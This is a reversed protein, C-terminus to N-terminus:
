GSFHEEGHMPIRRCREPSWSISLLFDWLSRVYHICNQLALAHIESSSKQAGYALTLNELIISRRFRLGHFWLHGLVSSVFLAVRIPVWNALRSLVYFFRIVPCRRRAGIPFPGFVGLIIAASGFGVS